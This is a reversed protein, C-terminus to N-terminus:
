VRAAEKKTQAEVKVLAYGLQFTVLKGCASCLVRVSPPMYIAPNQGLVAKSRETLDAQCNPCIFKPM